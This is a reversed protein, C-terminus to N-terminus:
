FNFTIDDGIMRPSSVGGSIHDIVPMDPKETVSRILENLQAALLEMDAGTFFASAYEMRFHYTGDAENVFLSIPFKSTNNELQYRSFAQQSFLKESSFDQYVFMVDFLQELPSAKSSNREAVIDALDYIQRSNVQVLHKYLDKVLTRFTMNIDLEYRVPLTKAFMGVMGELEEQMRGSTNIGVVIDEQGSLQSLFMFYATFFGAFPTVQEEQLIAMLPQLTDTSISFSVNGGQDTGETINRRVPLELRPIKGELTKLWFERHAFYEDTTRFNYEWEAYDKYQISLPSLQEGRYLQLFESVLNVQSLGDCVIHHMDMVLVRKGAGYRIGCRFLSTGSLDFPRIFARIDSIQEIQFDVADNVMQKVRGEQFRFSTRLSEHRQLLAKLIREITAEEVDDEIEWAMPLNFATSQKNLEYHFYVREQAQSLHYAPMNAAKRIVLLSDKDALRILAAQARITLHKFLESLAIRVSFDKYIRAILRMINISSGGIEHFNDLVSIEERKLIQKWIDLLRAETDNAPPIINNMALLTTLERYHIKGNSLLPFENVVRIGAPMMYVPLRSELYTHLHETLLTNEQQENEPIVFAMLVDQGPEPNHVIVAAAKALGSRVIESEIGDLEIRIGRIKVQRDERGLLDINDDPLKRAIDGTKFAIRGGPIKIFRENTLEPANLYGKTIFDSIIYLDGTVLTNCPIMDKGAILFSTDHIPMGIPIRAKDLDAPQVLYASRIMTTETPGYLNVLQIRSGFLNFWNKLEAPIIREGSLLIYRLGPFDDKSLRETDLIRFVSPVCHILHVGSNNIWASLRDPTFIDTDQPPICITAGSLLPVFVDRLFADFYPSVLQSIRYTENIGFAATEWQIFQLLSKNRGVIGKPRGTTGSTFYIYISDGEEWVPYRPKVSTVLDEPFYYQIGEKIEHNKSSIMHKLQLDELMDSLRKEPQASDIPVAVCGANMIGILATIQEVRDYLQIGVITEKELGQELLCATIRDALDLLRGYTVIADGSEIAIRTAHHQLSRLLEEQFIM